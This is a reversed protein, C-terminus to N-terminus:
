YESIKHTTFGILALYHRLFIGVVPVDPDINFSVKSRSIESKMASVYCDLFAIDNVIDVYFM